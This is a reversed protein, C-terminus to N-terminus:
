WHYGILMGIRWGEVEGYKRSQMMVFTLNFASLGM